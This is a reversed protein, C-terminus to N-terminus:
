GPRHILGRPARRRWPWHRQVLTFGAGGPLVPFLVASLEALQSQVLPAKATNGETIAQELRAAQGELDSFQEILRGVDLSGVSQCYDALGTGAMLVANKQGYGISITPKSLMLACVVNHYRTAVV